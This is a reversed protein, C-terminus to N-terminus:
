DEKEIGFFVKKINELDPYDKCNISKLFANRNYYLPIKKVKNKKTDIIYYYTTNDKRCGSSGVGYFEKGNIFDIRGAHEHGYFVYDSDIKDMEKIYTDDRFISLHKFSYINKKELLFHIFTYKKNNISLEYILKQEKLKKLNEKSLTTTVWLNHNKKNINTDPDISVGETSYLEHNGLIFIVKEKFLLDLCKNSDPGLSIADGLFITKDIDKGKIDKLISELAQYNGHIDSFVAIKMNNVM